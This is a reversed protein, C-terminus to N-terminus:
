TRSSSRSTCLHFGPASGTPVCPPLRRTPYAATRPATPSPGAACGCILGWCLSMCLDATYHIKRAFRWWGSVLLLSGRETRIFEPQKLTQWPLQPFAMPRAVYTGQQQMRFHNKQSNATDWVYYAFVLVVYLLITYPASHEIPGAVKALYVSQFCYVFPVGADPRRPSRARAPPRPPTLVHAAGARRAPWAVPLIGSSSCGATRRTSSTGLPPSASRRSFPCGERSATAATLPAAVPPSPGLSESRVEGKMCANTYLGHALCLFLIPYSVVGHVEYMFAACSTTLFFLLMWSIRIEAFMKLDLSGIRPNLPAGMFFDYVINGSMRYQKGLAVTIVYTLVSIANGSLVSVTLLPGYHHMLTSWPFLGSWQLYIWLSFTIYWAWLANCNYELQKGGEHELPLGKMVIGPCLYQLAAEFFLFAWYIKTAYWTPWAGETIHQAMRKLFPGVDDLSSPYVVGADYYTLCIWCYYILVHSFVMIGLVGWPGGFEWEETQEGPKKVAKGNMHPKTGNKQAM